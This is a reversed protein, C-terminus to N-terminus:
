QTTKVKIVKPEQFITTYNRGFLGYKRRTKQQKHEHIRKLRTRFIAFFSKDKEHRDTQGCPVVRSGSSPNKHFEVDSYKEFIRRPFELKM